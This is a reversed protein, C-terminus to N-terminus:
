DGDSSKKKKQAKLEVSFEADDLQQQLKQQDVKRRTPKPRFQSQDVGDNTDDHFKQVKKDSSLTTDEHLHMNSRYNPVPSPKDYAPEPPQVYGETMDFSYRIMAGGHFGAAENSGGLTAGGDVQFTWKKGVKFRVYLLSDVLSPNLSDFRYSGALVTNTYAQRLLPNNTDTDNTISHFGFVELGVRDTQNFKLESGIGWPLLASRGDGRYDAGLYVYGLSPGFDKQMTIRGITEVVNESNPVSDSQFNQEQFPLYMSIEPVIQFYGAYAMWDMGMLAANITSNTRSAVSNKSQSDAVNLTAFVAWRASPMYRTGFDVNILSFSNGSPLSSNSGSSDYNAQSSFYEASAEFDWHDRNFQKYEDFAGASFSLLVAGLILVLHRLNNAIKM